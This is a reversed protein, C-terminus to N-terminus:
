QDGIVMREGRRRRGLGQRQGLGQLLQPYLRRHGLSIVTPSM